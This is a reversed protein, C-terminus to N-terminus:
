LRRIDGEPGAVFTPKRRSAKNGSELHEWALRLSQRGSEISGDRYHLQAQQAHQLAITFWNHRIKNRNRALKDQIREILEAVQGHIDFGPEAPTWYSAVLYCGMIDELTNDDHFRPMRFVM